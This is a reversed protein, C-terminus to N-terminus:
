LAGSFLTGNPSNVNHYHFTLGHARNLIFGISSTEESASSSRAIRNRHHLITRKGVRGPRHKIRHKTQTATHPNLWVLGDTTREASSNSVGAFFRHREGVLIVVWVDEFAFETEGPGLRLDLHTVEVDIRFLRM